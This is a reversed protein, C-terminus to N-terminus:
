KRPGPQSGTPVARARFKKRWNYLSAESVVLQRCAKGVPMGSDILALAHAIQAESFRPKGL